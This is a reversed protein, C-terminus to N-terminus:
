MHMHMNDLWGSRNQSTGNRIWFKSGSDRAKAANLCFCLHPMKGPSRELTGEDCFIRITRNYNHRRRRRARLLRETREKTPQSCSKRAPRTNCLRCTEEPRCTTAGRRRRRWVGKQTRGLLQMSRQVHRGVCCFPQGQVQCSRCAVTTM